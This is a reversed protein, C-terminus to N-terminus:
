KTDKNLENLLLNAVTIKYMSDVDKKALELSNKRKLMEAQEYESLANKMSVDVEKLRQRVEADVIGFQKAIVEEIKKSLDMIAQKHIRTYFADFNKAREEDDEEKLIISLESDTLVLREDMRNGVFSTVEQRLKEFEKEIVEVKINLKKGGYNGDNISKLCVIFRSMAKNAEIFAENGVKEGDKHAREKMEALENAIKTSHDVTDAKSPHYGCGSDSCSDFICCFGCDMVCCGGGM